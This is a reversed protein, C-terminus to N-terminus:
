PKNENKYTTWPNKRTKGNLIGTLNQPKNEWFRTGGAEARVNSIETYMNKTFPKEKFSMIRNTNNVEM